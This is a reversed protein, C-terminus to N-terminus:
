HHILSLYYHLVTDTDMYDPIGDRDTDQFAAGLAAPPCEVADPVGDNDSDGSDPGDDDRDLYDPIGDGDRSATGESSDPKGDNDSDLDRYNPTRDRDADYPRSPRIGVETRDPIGDNDSDLDLYDPTGDGDTDDDAPNGDNNADEVLDPITDGDSDLPDLYNPIGDGDSDDDTPNGNGNLDEDITPIGDNDDDDDLYDAIGDGDNDPCIGDDCIFGGPQTPTPTPTPGVPTNTPTPTPGVPTNTPVPSPTPPVGGSVLGADLTYKEQGNTLTFCDSIGDPNVDSDYDDDLIIDKPSFSTFGAPLTVKIRYQGAPLSGIIYDGSNNTLKTAVGTTGTCGALVQVTVGPVGREGIDQVGNGNVDNWVRDGVTATGSGGPTSTPTPTPGVPTNTPM